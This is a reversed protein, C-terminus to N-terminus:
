NVPPHLHQPSLSVLVVVSFDNQKGAHASSHPAFDEPLEDVLDEDCDPCTLIGDRYEYGCRPCYM